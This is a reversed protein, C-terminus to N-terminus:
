RQFQTPKRRLRLEAEDEPEKIDVLDWLALKKTETEKIEHVVKASFRFKRKEENMWEAIAVPDSPDGMFKGDYVPEAQDLFQVLATPSWRGSVRKKIYEGNDIIAKLVLGHMNGKPDPKFLGAGILTMDQRSGQPPIDAPDINFM